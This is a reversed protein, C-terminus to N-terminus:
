CDRGGGKAMILFFNPTLFLLLRPILPYDQLASAAILFPLPSLFLALLIPNEQYFAFVGVAFALIGIGPFILGAPNRFFRVFHGLYWGWFSFKIPSLPAFNRYHELKLMKNASIPSLIFHYFLFFSGGWATLLLFLRFFFKVEREKVAKYAFIIGIGSLIFISPFSFWIATTGSFLLLLFKFIGVEADNQVFHFFFLYLVLTVAVDTAYPKVESSYYILPFCFAFLGTSLVLAKDSLIKRALREFLFLSSIGCLLPFARLALGGSGFIEVFGKEVLLFGTPAALNYNLPHFLGIFSRHLISLALVAEDLWLSRDTLYQFLRLEIGLIIFIWLYFRPEKWLKSQFLNM